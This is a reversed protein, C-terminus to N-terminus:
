FHLQSPFLKTNRMVNPNLSNLSPMPTVLDIRLPNAHFFNCFTPAVVYISSGAFLKHISKHGAKTDQNKVLEKLYQNRENSTTNEVNM